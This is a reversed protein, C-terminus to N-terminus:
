IDHQTETSEIAQDKPNKTTAASPALIRGFGLPLAGWVTCHRAATAAALTASSAPDVGTELAAIFTGGFVDGAGTTDIVDVAVAPIQASGAPWRVLSGRAGDTEVVVASPPPGGVEAFQERDAVAISWHTTNANPPIEGVFSVPIGRAVAHGLLQEAWAGWRATFVVHTIGDLVEAQPRLEPPASESWCYRRGQRDTVVICRVPRDTSPCRGLGVSAARLAHVLESEADPAREPQPLPHWLEVESLTAAALAVASASGGAVWGHTASPMSEIFGVEHAEPLHDVRVVLDSTAASGAILLRSM